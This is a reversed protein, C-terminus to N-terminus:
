KLREKAEIQENYWYKQTTFDIPWDRQAKRKIDDNPISKMYKYAEKQENIWYEQTTYDNPWDRKARAKLKAFISKEENKDMEIKEKEEKEIRAIIEREKSIDSSSIIYKNETDFFDIRKNGILWFYKSKQNGNEYRKAGDKEILNLINIDIGKETNSTKKSKKPYIHQVVRFLKEKDFFYNSSSYLEYDGTNMISILAGEKTLQIQNKKILESTRKDFENKTMGFIFGLYLSDKKIGTSLSENELEEYTKTIEEKKSKSNSCGIILLGIVITLIKKM